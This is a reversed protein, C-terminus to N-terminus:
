GSKLFQVYSKVYSIWEPDEENEADQLARELCRIKFRIKFPRRPPRPPMRRGNSQNKRPQKRRDAVVTKEGPPMSSEMMSDMCESFVFDDSEQPTDSDEDEDDCSMWFQLTGYFMAGLVTFALDQVLNYKLVHNVAAAAPTMSTSLRCLLVPLGLLVLFAAVRSSMNFDKVIGLLCQLGSAPSLTKVSESPRQSLHNSLNGIM